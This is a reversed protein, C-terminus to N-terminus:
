FKQLILLDFNNEKVQVFYSCFVVKRQVLVVPLVCSGLEAQLLETFGCGFSMNPSLIRYMSVLWVHCQVGSAIALSNPM